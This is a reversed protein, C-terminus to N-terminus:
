RRAAIRTRPAWSARACSPRALSAGMLKLFGRRSVPDVWEQAAPLFEREVAAQFAPTNSLEDLSRWFKKGKAGNLKERVAALTMPAPAITILKDTKDNEMPKEVAPLNKRNASM